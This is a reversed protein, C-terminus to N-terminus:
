LVLTDLYTLYQFIVLWTKRISQHNCMTGKEQKCLTSTSFSNTTYLYLLVKSQDFLSFIRLFSIHNLIFMGTQPGDMEIICSCARSTERNNFPRVRVAVKVSSMKAFRQNRKHVSFSFLFFLANRTSFANFKFICM